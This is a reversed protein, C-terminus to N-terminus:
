SNPRRSKRWRDGDRREREAYWERALREDDPRPDSPGDHGYAARLSAQHRREADLREATQDRPATGNADRLPPRDRGSELEAVRRELNEIKIRDDAHRRLHDVRKLAVALIREVCDECVWASKTSRDVEDSYIVTRSDETLDRHRCCIMCFNQM